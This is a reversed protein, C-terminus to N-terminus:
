NCGEELTITKYYPRPHSMAVEHIVSEYLAFILRHKADTNEFVM